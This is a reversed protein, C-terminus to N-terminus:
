DGETVRAAPPNDWTATPAKQGAIRAALAYEAASMGAWDLSILAQSLANGVMMAKGRRAFAADIAEALEGTAKQRARILAVALETEQLGELLMQGRTTIVAAEPGAATIAPVYGRWLWGESPPSGFKSRTRDDVEFMTWADLGIRGITGGDRLVVRYSLPSSEHHISVRQAGVEYYEKKATEPWDRSFEPLGGGGPTMRLGTMLGGLATIKGDVPAAERVWHSYVMWRMSPAIKTFFDVHKQLPRSDFAESVLVFKEDIGRQKAVRVAGELAPKWFAESGPAGFAPAEMPKMQGTKPDYETVMVPGVKDSARGRFWTRSGYAHQWISLTMVKPPGWVDVYLDLYRELLAFDPTYGDGNKVWRILGTEHGLYSDLTVPVLLVDNGIKEVTRFSTEILKFHEDSWPKVKYAAALTEPSQYLSVFTANDKPSPVTWDSVLLQFPVRWSKGGAAVSLEGTYWGPAQDRPVDVLVWVPQTSAGDVPRPLIANCYDVRDGPAAYGLRVGAAPITERGGDRTLPSLSAKLGSFGAPGSVIVQGSGTGGRPAVTRVPRLPEFPNGRVIGSPTITVRWWLFGEKFKGPENAVTDMPTANGLTIAKLADDWAIVGAGSASTLTAVDVGGTSWETRDSIRMGELPAAHVEIALVNAGKVLASAPVQVKLSRIRKELRDAHEEAPRTADRLPNGEADVFAEKPYADARTKPELTGAPLNRRAIETGNVYVVVGGRYELALTLDKVAAPDAIGFHTRLSLQLTQPSQNAGYGGIALGLDSSYRGWGSADFDRATWNAPPTPSVSEIERTRRDLSAATLFVRWPAGQPLVFTEAAATTAAALLILLTAFSKRTMM